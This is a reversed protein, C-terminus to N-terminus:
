KDITGILRVATLEWGREKKSNAKKTAELFSRATILLTDHALSAIEEITAEYIKM